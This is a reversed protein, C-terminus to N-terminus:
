INKGLKEVKYHVDFELLVIDGLDTNDAALRTMKWVVIASETLGTMTIAPFSFVVHKRVSNPNTFTQVEGTTYMGAGYDAALVGNINVAKYDLRWKSVNTSATTCLVHIHPTIASGAAWGHPLQFVGAILKDAGAAFVLLGTNADRSPDSGSGIPNIANAPFRLDEDVQNPWASGLLLGALGVLLISVLRKM